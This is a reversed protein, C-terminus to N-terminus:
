LQPLDFWVAGLQRKRLAVQLLHPLIPCMEETQLDVTINCLDLLFSVFVTYEFSEDGWVSSSSSHGINM